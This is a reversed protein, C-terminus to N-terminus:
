KNKNKKKLKKDIFITAIIISLIGIIIIGVIVYTQLTNFKNGINIRNNSIKDLLAQQEAITASLKATLEREEDISLNLKDILNQEDVLNLQLENIIAFQEDVSLDLTNILIAQDDLNLNMSAILEADEIITNDLAIIIEAQDSFSLKMQAILEGQEINTITLQSVLEIKEALNFNLEDILSDLETVNLELQAVLAIQTDKEAELEIVRLAKEAITAKYDNVLLIQTDLEFKLNEIDILKEDILVNLVAIDAADKTATLKLGEIIDNNISANLNLEQILLLQGTINITLEKITNTYGSADLNLQAIEDLLTKRQTDTLTIIDFIPKWENSRCIFYESNSLIIDDDMCTLISCEGDTCGFDCTEITRTEDNLTCRNASCSYTRYTQSVDDGSCFLSGILGSTGCDSVSTCYDDPITCKGGACGFDCTKITRTSDSSDCTNSNCTYTRYTQSVDDGSCFLSGILGSSGCDSVSTCYDDSIDCEVTIRDIDGSEWNATAVHLEINLYNMELNNWPDGSGCSSDAYDNYYGEVTLTEGGRRITEKNTDEQTLYATKCSNSSDDGTKSYLKYSDASDFDDVKAIVRGFYKYCKSSSTSYSLSYKNEDQPNLITKDSVKNYSGYSGCGPEGEKICDQDCSNSDCSPRGDEDYGSPCSPLSCQGSFSVNETPAGFYILSGTTVVIAMLILSIYLITKNKNKM